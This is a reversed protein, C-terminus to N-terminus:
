SPLVTPCGGNKLKFCTECFKATDTFEHIGNGLQIALVLISDADLNLKSQTTMSTALRTLKTFFYGVNAVETLVM